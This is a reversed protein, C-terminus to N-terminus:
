SATQTKLVAIWLNIREVMQEIEENRDESCEKSSVFDDEQLIYRVKWEWYVELDGHFYVSLDLDVSTCKQNFTKHDILEFWFMCIIM